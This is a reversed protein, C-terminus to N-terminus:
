GVEYVAENSCVEYYSRETWSKLQFSRADIRPIRGERVIVKHFIGPAVPVVGAYLRARPEDWLMSMAVDRQELSIEQQLKRFAAEDLVIGGVNYRVLFEDPQGATDADDVTQLAFVNFISDAAASLRRASKSCSSLRDSANLAPSIMIPANGDMLYMPATDQYSIGIGLELTPLGSKQSLENYGRVIEIIERALVCARGVGFAEEGEREFLALILADGEIFLKQAGYKPLLKKIPDYFNLSFYSAPNLGRDYLTRTLLTSDRVDAKLIVHHIVKAEAPKEEEALLFEYLTHNIASLERLRDSSILNVTETAANVAELRRLDRHFRFFDNMFRAAIKARESGSYRGMRHVAALLSDKSLRGHQELLSEVRKREVRSILANKLQQPNLPPAYEALLPVAEYSALVHAFVDERELWEVWAELLARQFRGAETSEDPGGAAFLKQVNEPENLLGDLQSGDQAGYGLSQLFGCVIDRMPMFRDPDREFNGFMVYHQARLIDDRGDETFLLRNLFLEYGADAHDGFLSRRMRAIGTKEVDRLTAFLDQGTKRLITKKEVQFRTAQEGMAIAQQPFRQSPSESARLRARCRELVGAYQATMEQRLCKILALRCLTDVSLNGEAKARRLSSEFLGTLATKFDPAEPLPKGVAKIVSPPPQWRPKEAVVDKVEGYTVILRTIHTRAAQLFRPSLSVDQRVNDIGPILSELTLSPTYRSLPLRAACEALNPRERFLAM